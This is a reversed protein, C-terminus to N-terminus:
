KMLNEHIIFSSHLWTDVNDLTSQNESHAITLLVINRQTPILLAKNCLKTQIRLIEVTYTSQLHIESSDTSIADM